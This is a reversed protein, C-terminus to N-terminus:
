SCLTCTCHAEGQVSEITAPSPVVRTGPSGAFLQTTYRSGPLTVIADLKTSAPPALTSPGASGTSALTPPSTSRCKSAVGFGAGVAAGGGTAAGGGVTGDFGSGAGSSGFVSSGFASPLPIEGTNKPIPAPAVTASPAAVIQLPTSVMLLGPVAATM